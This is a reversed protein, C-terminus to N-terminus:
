CQRSMNAKVAQWILKDVFRYGLSEGEVDKTNTLSASDNNESRDKCSTQLM